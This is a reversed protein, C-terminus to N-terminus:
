EGGLFKDRGYVSEMMLSAGLAFGECFSTEAATTILKDHIEILERLYEKARGEVMGNLWTEDQRFSQDLFEFRPDCSYDQGNLRPEGFFLKSIISQM